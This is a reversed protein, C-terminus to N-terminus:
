YHLSVWIKGSKQTLNATELAAQQKMERKKQMIYAKTIQTGEGYYVPGKRYSNKKFNPSQSNYRNTSRYKKGDQPKRLNNEM